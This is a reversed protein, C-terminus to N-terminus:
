FIIKSEKEVWMWAITFALLSIAAAILFISEAGGKDWLYGSYLSGVVGGLGFSVGSYLAQGKLQSRGKFYRHLLHIAVAHNSGFSAAHLLQAVLLLGFSDRFYAILLWRLLALLLGTLLINRLSYRKLLRHMVIFLFVEAVVGLAWLMGTAGGSYGQADLSITYFVYYPGHSAQVLFCVVFFALVHPSKAISVWDREVCEDSHVSPSPVLLSVLWVIALLSIILMPLKTISAQEFWEGIFIVVVIFGVSGWTRIASYRHSDAKLHFLTVAEFQPLSANWFFSFLFTISAVWWFGEGWFIGTFAVVSLLSALRVMIMPHDTCESIWSWINPSVVKTGLLVAVLIGIDIANFGVSQLYISWYPIISGLAAFYFFYFGSLRWYPAPKKGTM